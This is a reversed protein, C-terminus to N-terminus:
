LAIAGDIVLYCGVAVLIAAFMVPGADLLRARVAALRPEADSPHRAYYLFTLGVTATSIVTFIVFAIVVVVAGLHDHVVVIAAAATLTWPQMLIGVVTAQRPSMDTLRDTISRPVGSSNRPRHRRQWQRAGTAILALGLLVELINVVVRGNGRQLDHASGIFYSVAFVITLSIVWGIFFAVANVRARATTLLLIFVIIRSPSLSALLGLFLIPLLLSM